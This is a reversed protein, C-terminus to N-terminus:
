PTNSSAPSLKKMANPMSKVFSSCLTLLAMGRAEEPTIDDLVSLVQEFQDAPFIAVAAQLSFGRTSNTFDSIPTIGSIRKLAPARDDSLSGPSTKRMLKVATTLWDLAAQTDFRGYTSVIGLAVRASSENAEGKRVIAGAERLWESARITDKDEVLKQAGVVFSAARQNLDDNKSNLRYAEDLKRAAVFHLVARYILWSRVGDRLNKDDIKATLDLGRQYREVTTAVAATAYGIDRTLLDRGKGAAEELLDVRREAFSERSEGPRADPIDARRQAPATAFQAESDLQQARARLLAAKDPLQETVERLLIEIVSVFSRAVIQVNSNEPTTATLLLDSALELFERAMAPNQRAAPIAVRAGGIALQVQNRNDSTNSGFVRGPTYLYAHLTLLENPDNMGAMKLRNLAARFVTEALASDKEQLQILTTQFNFSIGDRLSEILLEAAAQPNRAVVENAMQLLVASRASRDDFTGREIKEASKSEEVMEELWTASLKPARRRAVLLVDRRVANRLSPNVVSSRDRKPEEIKATTSWATKLQDQASDPNADWILDAIQALTRAAIAKDDWKRAEGATSNLVEVIRQLFQLEQSNRSDQTQARVLSAGPIIAALTIAITFCCLAQKM